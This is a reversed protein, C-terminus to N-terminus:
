QQVRRDLEREPQSDAEKVVSKQLRDPPSRPLAAGGRHAVGQIAIGKPQSGLVSATGVIHSIDLYVRADPDLRTAPWIALPPGACRVGKVVVTRAFPLPDDASAVESPFEASGGGRCHTRTKQRNTDIEVAM